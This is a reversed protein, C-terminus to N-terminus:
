PHAVADMEDGKRVASQPDTLEGTPAESCGLLAASCTDGQERASSESGTEEEEVPLSAHSSISACGWRGPSFVTRLM